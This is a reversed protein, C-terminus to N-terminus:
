QLKLGDQFLGLDALTTGAQQELYQRVNFLGLIIEECGAIMFPALDVSKDEATVTCLQHMFAAVCRATDLMMAADLPTGPKHALMKIRMEKLAFLAEDAATTDHEAAAIWRDSTQQMQRALTLMQSPSNTM